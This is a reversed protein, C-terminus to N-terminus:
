GEDEEYELEPVLKELREIHGNMLRYMETYEEGFVQGSLARYAARLVQLRSVIEYEKETM